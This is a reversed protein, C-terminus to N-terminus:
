AAADGAGGGGAEEPPKGVAEGVQKDLVGDADAVPVDGEQGREVRWLDDKLLDGDDVLQRAQKHAGEGQHQGVEGGSCTPWVAGGAAGCPAACAGSVAARRGWWSGRCRAAQKPPQRPRRPRRLQAGGGGAQRCGLPHLGLAVHGGGEGQGADDGVDRERAAARTRRAAPSPGVPLGGAPMGAWGGTQQSAQLPGSSGLRCGTATAGGTGMGGGWGWGGVGGLGGM